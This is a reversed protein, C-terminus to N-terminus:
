MILCIEEDTGEVLGNRLPQRPPAAILVWLWAAPGPSRSRWPPTKKEIISLQPDDM